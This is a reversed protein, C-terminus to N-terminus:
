VAAGANAVIDFVCTIEDKVKIAGAAATVLRIGYASQRVAFEGYARLAGPSVVARVNIPHRHAAGHLTLTGGLAIDFQDHGTPRASTLSAPADYAITPYRSTELVQERLIREIERRDTSSVDDVLELSSGAIRVSLSAEAGSEPDLHVEGEYQRVAFTPHHALVSLLGAAFARVTFTSAGVDIRYTM